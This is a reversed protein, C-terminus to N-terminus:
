QVEVRLLLDKNGRGMALAFDLGKEDSKELVDAVLAALKTALREGVEAEKKAGRLAVYVMGPEGADARLDFGEFPSLEDNVRRAITEAISQLLQDTM